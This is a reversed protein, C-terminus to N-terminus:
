EFHYIFSILLLDTDDVKDMDTQWGIEDDCHGQTRAEHLQQWAAM